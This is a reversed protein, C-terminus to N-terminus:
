LLITGTAQHQVERMDARSIDTSLLLPVKLTELPSHSYIALSRSGFGPTWGPTFPCIGLVM